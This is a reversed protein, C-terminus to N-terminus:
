LLTETIEVVAQYQARLEPQFDQPDMFNSEEEVFGALKEASALVDSAGIRKALAPLRVRLLRLLHHKQDVRLLQARQLETSRTALAESDTSSVAVAQPVDSLLADRHFEALGVEHAADMLQEVAAGVDFLVVDALRVRARYDSELRQLREAQEVDRDAAREERRQDLQSEWVLLAIGILGGSVVAGAIERIADDARYRFAAVSAVVVVLCLM